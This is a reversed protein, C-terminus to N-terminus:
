TLHIRSRARTHQPTKHYRQPHSIRNNKLDTHCIHICNFPRVEFADTSEEVPLGPARGNGIAGEITGARTSQGKGGNRLHEDETFSPERGFAEMWDESYNAVKGFRAWAADEGYKDRPCDFSLRDTSPKRFAEALSRTTVLEDDRYNKQWANDDFRSIGPVVNTAQEANLGKRGTSYGPFVLSLDMSSQEIKDMLRTIVHDKEAIRKKLDGIQTQHRLESAVAPLIVERTLLMRGEQLLNFTWRLPLLPVPLPTSSLLTFSRPAEKDEKAHWGPGIKCRGGSRGSLGDMLKSLLVDFQSADESPDISSRTHTAEKTISARNRSDKWCHILDTIYLEFGDSSTIFKFLLKPAGYDRNSFPLTRWEEAISSMASM